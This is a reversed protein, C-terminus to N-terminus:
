FKRVTKRTCSQIYYLGSRDLMHLTRLFQKSAPFMRSFFVRMKNVKSVPLFRFVGITWVCLRARHWCQVVDAVENKQLWFILGFM